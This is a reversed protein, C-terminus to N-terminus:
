PRPALARDCPVGPLFAYEVVLRRTGTSTFELELYRKAPSADLGGAFLEARAHEPFPVSAPDPDEPTAVRRAVLTGGPLEAAIADADFYGKANAVGDVAALDYVLVGGDAKDPEPLPDAGDEGNLVRAPPAPRVAVRRAFPTQLVSWAIFEDAGDAAGAGAAPVLRSEVRLVGDSLSVAREVRCPCDGGEPAPSLITAAAATAGPLVEYRDQDFFAPPPWGKGAMGRWRAQPGIWTKEGGHNNWGYLISDGPPPTWFVNGPAGAPRFALIRGGAAPAVVAAAGTADSLVIVNQESAEQDGSANMAANNGQFSLDLDTEDRANAGSEAAPADRCPEQPAANARAPSAAACVILIPLMRMMPPIM